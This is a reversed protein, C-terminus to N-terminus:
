AKARDDRHDKTPEVSAEVVFPVGNSTVAAEPGVHETAPDAGTPSTASPATTLPAPDTSEMHMSQAFQSANALPSRRPEDRDLLSGLGGLSSMGGMGPIDKVSERLDRFAKGLSSGMEIMRKPGFVLLAIVLLILIEPLHGFGPM